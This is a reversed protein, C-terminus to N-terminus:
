RASRRALADYFEADEEQRRRNLEAAKLLGESNEPSFGLELHRRALDTESAAPKGEVRDLAAKFTELILEAQAPTFNGDTLVKIGQEHPTM